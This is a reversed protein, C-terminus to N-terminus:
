WFKVGGGGQGGLVGLYRRGEVWVGAVDMTNSIDELSNRGM